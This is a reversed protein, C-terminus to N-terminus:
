VSPAFALEAARSTRAHRAVLWGFVGLLLDIAIALLSVVVAGAFMEPYNGAQNGSSLLRGLGVGAIFGAITTTSVVQLTARRLGSIVSPLALPWEVRGFLQRGTLGIAKAAYVADPDADAVGRATSTLVLPLALIALVAVIWGATAGWLVIVLALLGLSPVARVLTAFGTGAFLGYRGRGTSIGLPIGILAALLVAVGTYALHQGLLVVIGSPGIWNAPDLLYGWIM